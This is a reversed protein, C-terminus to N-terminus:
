MEKGVFLGILASVITTGQVFGWFTWSIGGFFISFFGIILYFFAGLFFGFFGGVIAGLIAKGISKWLEETAEKEAKQKNFLDQMAKENQEIQKEQNIEALRQNKKALTNQEKLYKNVGAEFSQNLIESDYPEIWNCEVSGDQENISESIEPKRPPYFFWRPRNAIGPYIIVCSGNRMYGHNFAAESMFEIGAGKSYNKKIKDEIGEQYAKRFKSQIFPNEYKAIFDGRDNLQLRIHREFSISEDNNLDEFNFGNQYVEDVTLGQELLIQTQKKLEKLRIEEQQRLENHKKQSDLAMLAAIGAQVKLNQAALERSNEMQEEAIRKDSEIRACTSCQGYDPKFGGCKYCTAM